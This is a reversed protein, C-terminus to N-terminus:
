RRLAPLAVVVIAAAALAAAAAVDFAGAFGVHRAAWAGAVPGLAFGLSGALNFGALASARTEPTTWEATLALTPPFIVAALAGLLVLLAGLMGEEIRGLAAFALGYLATGGALLPLAGFSRTLRYTGLQCFAFPLLFLALARGREAPDDGGRAALFLPFVVVFLGVTFREVFYLGWPLLLRPRGALARAIEGLRPRALPAARAPLFLGAAAQVLFLSGAVALPARPGWATALLGGVPAGLGVGLIMSAGALGALRHRNREGASDFLLALTTSWGAIAAAGQVFRLALLAPISDVRLYALYVAGAIAFGAVIFPRRRGVRDSLAGWIPAFVLYAVMEVTFFLAGDTITGGLEDLVLEKIAPVILTLNFMAGFLLACPLAVTLAPLRSQPPEAFSVSPV